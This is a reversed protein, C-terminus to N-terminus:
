YEEKEVVWNMSGRNYGELDLTVHKFGMKKIGKTVKKFIELDLFRCMEDRSIEIRAIDGHHRVRFQKFGLLKLYNEAKEITELKEMTIKNGYPIRTALCSLAPKDWTPLGMGRSLNRIDDKTLEADLLPSIVELEKLAKMGPRYDGLDDMNSGDAIYEIGISEAKEIITTFIQKKCLYCRNPPNDVIEQFRSYGLNIEIHKVELSKVLKRADEIENRPQMPANVTIAVVNDGLEDRCVKLLFTSDVGASFAVAIKQKEKIINKLKDLKKNIM